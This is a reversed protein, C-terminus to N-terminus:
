KRKEKERTWSSALSMHIDGLPAKGAVVVMVVILLFLLAADCFGTGIRPGVSM